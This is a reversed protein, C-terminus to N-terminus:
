LFYKHCVYQAACKFTKNCDYCTQAVKVQPKPGRKKREEPLKRKYRSRTKSYVFLTFQNNLLLVTQNKKKRKIIIKKKMTEKLISKLHFLIKPIQKMIEQGPFTLM